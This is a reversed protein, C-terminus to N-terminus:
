MCIVYISMAVFASIAVRVFSVNLLKNSLNRSFSIEEIAEVSLTPFERKILEQETNKPLWYQLSPVEIWPMLVLIVRDIMYVVSLITVIFIALTNKLIKMSTSARSETVSNLM